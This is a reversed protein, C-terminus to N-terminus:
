NDSVNGMTPKLSCTLLKGWFYFSIQTTCIQNCSKICNKTILIHLMNHFTLKVKILQIPKWAFFRKFMKNTIQLTVKKCNNNTNLYNLYM